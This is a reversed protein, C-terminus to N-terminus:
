INNLVDVSEWEWGIDVRDLVHKLFAVDLQEIIGLMHANFVDELGEIKVVWLAVNWSQLDYVVFICHEFTCAVRQRV